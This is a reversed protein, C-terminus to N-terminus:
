FLAKCKACAPVHSKKSASSQQGLLALVILLCMCLVNCCCTVCRTDPVMVPPGHYGCQPCDRTVPGAAKPTSQPSQRIPMPPAQAQPRHTPSYQLSEHEQVFTEGSPSTVHLAAESSGRRPPAPYHPQTLMHEQQSRHTPSYAKYEYEQSTEGTPSTVHLASQSTGRQTPTRLPPAPYLMQEHQSKPSQSM